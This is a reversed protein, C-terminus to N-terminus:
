KGTLFAFGNPRSNLGIKNLHRFSFADYHERLIQRTKPMSRIFQSESVSDFLIIHVNPKDLPDKVEKPKDKRFIQAHLYQYDTFPKFKGKRNIRACNVEIIDCEPRTGNQITIWKGYILEYDSKPLLCRYSCTRYMSNEYIFLQGDILKSIPNVTPKCNKMSNVNPNLYQRITADWPDLERLECHDFLLNSYNARIPKLNSSPVFSMRAIFNYSETDWKMVSNDIFLFVLLAIVVTAIITKVATSRSLM